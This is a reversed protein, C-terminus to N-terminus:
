AVPLPTMNALIADVVMLLMTTLVGIASNNMEKVSMNTNRLMRKPTNLMIGFKTGTNVASPSQPSKTPRTLKPTAQTAPILIPMM